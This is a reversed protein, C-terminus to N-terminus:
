KDNLGNLRKKEVLRVVLFLGEMDIVEVEEGKKIWDDKAKAQWFEGVVRIEGNPKLDSVAIGRAGILAEKGTRVKSLRAKAAKYVIFSFISAMAVTAIVLVAQIQQIVGSYILWQPSPFLLLSAVIMCIAGSLALVGIHTKLEAVIFVIGLAFLVVAGLSIGIVGFAILALVLCIAGTIEAGYGPTKIGIFLLFAGVILLLSSVLPNLLISFLISQIGPTYEVINAESINNFSLAYSYNQANDNPVLKWAMSGPTEEFHVLTFGELKTLLTHIDDAVFEIVHFQLAEEPGLNVNETVFLKAMTENRTHLSAHNEMLATLANVYKSQSIPEGTSLVPQCSGITTGSAMVAIHSAMLVYTGGSWATVGPPYVFCCITINSNDFLNMINQVADLEGGPTNMTVVLLRAQQAEALQLADNVITTTAATIEGNITVKLIVNTDGSSNVLNSSLGILIFVTLPITLRKLLTSAKRNKNYNKFSILEDSVGCRFVLELFAGPLM